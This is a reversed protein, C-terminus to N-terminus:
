DKVKDSIKDYCISLNTLQIMPNLTLFIYSLLLEPMQENINFFKISAFIALDSWENSDM